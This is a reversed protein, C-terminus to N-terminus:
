GRRTASRWSDHELDFPGEIAWDHPVSVTKWSKGDRSFEWDSLAKEGAPGGTGERRIEYDFPVDKGAFRVIPRKASVGRVAVRVPKGDKWACDVEYNGRACLGKFSGESAWDKPLAPLLDIYGAQSQLLMECIGSTAGFNGDIQFPPHADWLNDYTRHALLNRLLKLCHDGDGLRAWCNLRHALAWGTSEDGRETLTVTAAKMWDPREKTILSGPYLGVLHSIHRHTYEGIEGYKREERFEKIQGSEGVQVPDYRDMQARVKAVVADNTGLIEALRLLDRGNEWLMQQDFACGVTTYYKGNHIQEPSASFKSLCLGNTEVVCRTLFDAMGHVTPWVYKRLAERDGTFEWWDAFLKATFGGTGPGSHGGPGGCVVYPYVATGVCWIDPSQAVSPAEGLGHAKLYEGVFPRTIPRFAANFEAYPLFCEALNGVFASWYNMQVNINHWYGSGWPSRDHANWVGQLNAPLTGPRSSSVLLYRGYQFYTEELTASWKGEKCRKLLDPTPVGRDREGDPLDLRVRNMLSSFDAVHDARVRAYGKKAAAAVRADIESVPAEGSLATERDDSFEGASRSFSSAELRYNTGCSFFVTVHNAGTVEITHDLTTVKGDTEVLLRGHFKVNYYQLHQDVDIANDHAKVTGVRGVEEELGRGFQSLYPIWPRISVDLANTEVGSKEFRMVLVRDPYSCFYERRCVLGPTKSVVDAIGKELDLSRRFDVDDGWWRHGNGRFQIDFELADTLNHKTLFSNETLQVREGTGFASRGYWAFTGFVNAGFWGNGIPYSEREWGEISMDAPTRCFISHSGFAFAVPALAAALILLLGIKRM